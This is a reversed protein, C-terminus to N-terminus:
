WSSIPRHSCSGGRAGWGEGGMRRRSVSRAHVRRRDECHLTSSSEEAVKKWNTLANVFRSPWSRKRRLVARLCNRERDPRRARRAPVIWCSHEKRRVERECRGRLYRFWSCGRSSARMLSRRRRPGSSSAPSSVFLSRSSVRIAFLSMSSSFMAAMRESTITAPPPLVPSAMAVVSHFTRSCRASALLVLSSCRHELLSVRLSLARASVQLERSLVCSASPATQKRAMDEQVEASAPAGCIADSGATSPCAIASSSRSNGSGCERTDISSMPRSSNRVAHTLSTSRELAKADSVKRMARASTSSVPLPPPGMGM